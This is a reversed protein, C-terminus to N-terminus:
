LWILSVAVMVLKVVGEEETVEGELINSVVAGEFCCCHGVKQVLGVAKWFFELLPAM